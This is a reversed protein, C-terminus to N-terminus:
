KKKKNAYILVGFGAICLVLSGLEFFPFENAETNPVEIIEEDKMNCKVVEGNEKIEFYMKETNLTYGKPAEKELIYYKGYELEEIVIKGNEDTKGTFILEDKDNYIEITTNPLTVSESFDTKTFELTGTIKKDKITSKVIEEGTVEFYMKEENILYGEPAETEIFYYKGIPLREIIIKGEENTKGSYVLEDKDTYIEITTNPLSEETSIDQKTIELKSTKLKNEVLTKYTIVPTYQDKYKLEFCIQKDNLIYGDLTKIEKICYKGLKLNNFTLNGDKDTKGTAIEKNNQYLGFTIGSLSEKTYTYGEETLSAVEGVKEIKVEGKVPKNEFNTDFIIGYDSDDRLKSNEDITFELSESNWLYGDIVQDIEQLKYTGSNLPYATIFEGNNNTEFTCITQSTPYTITQCVEINTKTDIIKFKIGSRKIVEKTESDIKVVRLRATIEANSITRKITNGVEKVEINFDNMKEHGSTTTLQKVIYTGYPLTVEFNGQEDTTYEGVSENKNNYIGFKVGVEPTMIATKDTAYVKTFDFKREIVKEFVQVNPNLDNETIYFYYKNKDIQYGTSAKEELLYFTGLNPLYDSTAKGEENTTIEGVRTGDEKYIGYKAGNLSAEGQPTFEYTDADTKQISVKGGYVKISNSIMIPDINGRRIVNQSDSAYYLRVPEGYRNGLKVLKFSMNGVETATITLNNGNKTITAGKVDSIDYNELVGNSDTLTISSGIVMESPMNSFSPKKNHNNVLDMIENQEAKLINDNRTGDLTNTFYSDISPNVKNWILMQAAAYWKEASHDHTSDKYQYGYYAIKSITGWTDQSINLVSAYDETTVNYTNDQKISVYPQVCYVFAGDSSRVIFKETLWMRHGNGKNHVVYFPGGAVTKGTIIDGSTAAASVNTIRAFSSIGIILFLFLKLLKNKM